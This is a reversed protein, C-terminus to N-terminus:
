YMYAINSVRHYVYGSQVSSELVLQKKNNNM